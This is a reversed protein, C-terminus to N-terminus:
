LLNCIKEIYERRVNVKKNVILGTVEHQQNPFSFRNKKQNIEFGESIIIDEIIDRLGNEIFGHRRM